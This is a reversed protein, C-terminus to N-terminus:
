QYQCEKEVQFHCVNSLITDYRNLSHLSVLSIHYLIIMFNSLNELNKHCCSRLQHRTTYDAYRLIWSAFTYKLKLSQSEARLFNLHNLGTLWFEIIIKKNPTVM